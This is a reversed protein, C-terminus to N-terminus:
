DERDHAVGRPVALPVCPRRPHRHVRLGRVRRRRRRVRRLQPEAGGEREVHHHVCGLGVAHGVRLQAHRVHRHRPRRRRVHAVRAERGVRGEVRVRLAHVADRPLRIAPKHRHPQARLAKVIDNHQALLAALDPRPLNHAAKNRVSHTPHELGRQVLPETDPALIQLLLSLLLPSLLLSLLVFCRRLLSKMQSQHYGPMPTYVNSMPITCLGM